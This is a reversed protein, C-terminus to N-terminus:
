RIESASPTNITEVRPLLTSRNCTKNPVMRATSSAESSSTAPM